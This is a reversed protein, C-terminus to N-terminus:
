RGSRTAPASQTLYTHQGGFETLLALNQKNILPDTVSPKATGELGKGVEENSM